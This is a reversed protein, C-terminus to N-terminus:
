PAAVVRGAGVDTQGFAIFGPTTPAFGGDMKNRNRNVFRVEGYNLTDM